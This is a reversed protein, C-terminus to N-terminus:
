KPNNNYLFSSFTPSWMFYRLAICSAILSLFEVPNPLEDTLSLYEFSKLLEKRCGSLGYSSKLMNKLKSVHLNTEGKLQDYFGDAIDVKLSISNRENEVVKM